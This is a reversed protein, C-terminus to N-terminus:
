NFVMNSGNTVVFGPPDPSPSYMLWSMTFRWPPLRVTALSGPRPAVNVTSSGSSLLPPNDHALGADQHHVILIRDAVEHGLRELFVPEGHLRHARDALAPLRELPVQGIERQEVEQRVAGAEIAARILRVCGSTGTIM